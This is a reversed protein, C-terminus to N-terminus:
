AQAESIVEAWLEDILDHTNDMQLIFKMGSLSSTRRLSRAVLKKFKRKAKHSRNSNSIARVVSKKLTERDEEHLAM